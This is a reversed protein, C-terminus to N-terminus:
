RVCRIYIGSNRGFRHETGLNSGNYTLYYRSTINSNVTSWWFGINVDVPTSGGYYGGVVPLFATMALENDTLSNISGAPKGTNFSPLHWGAPCIDETALTANNYGIISSASAAPFNYWVGKETNGSDHCRPEDYSGGITLDNTCVDVNDHTSFNSFQSNVIGTIRLNQTMWCAGAIYRITYDNGDRRDYVTFPNETAVIQCMDRTMDQIYKPAWMAYLTVSENASALNAVSQRASYTYGSGDPETNWVAFQYDAVPEKPTFGSPLLGIPRDVCGTQTDMDGSGGNSDYVITYNDKCPAVFDDSPHVLTYKVKSNYTDPAQLSSAYVAYTTEFQSGKAAAATSGSYTAVKIYDDPVTHYADYGTTITPSVAGAVAALKMAWGSDDGHTATGTDITRGTSAGLMDNRGFETNTYGIAYVDFGNVDNCSASITSKGIDAQYTGATITATHAKDTVAGLRCTSTVIVSTDLTASDDSDANARGAVLALSVLFGLVVVGALMFSYKIRTESKKM